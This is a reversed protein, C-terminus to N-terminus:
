VKYIKEKTEKPDDAIGRLIELKKEYSSPSFYCKRCVPKYIDAGGIYIEQENRITRLSYDADEEKCIGCFAKLQIISECKPLIKAIPKFLERKFNGSLASIM